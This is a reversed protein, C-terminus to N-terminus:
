AHGAQHTSVSRSLSDRACSTHAPRRVLGGAGRPPSQLADLVSSPSIQSRLMKASAPSAAASALLAPLPEETGALDDEQSPLPPLLPHRDFVFLVSLNAPGGSLFGEKERVHACPTQRGARTVATSRAAGRGRARGVQVTCMQLFLKEALQWQGGRELANILSCCTM